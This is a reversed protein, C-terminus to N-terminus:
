GACPPPRIRAPGDKGELFVLGSCPPPSRSPRKRGGAHALGGCGICGVALEPGEPFLASAVAIPSNRISIQGARQALRDFGFHRAAGCISAASVFNRRSMTGNVAARRYWAAAHRPCHSFARAGSSLARRYLSQRGHAGLAAPSFGSAWPAPRITGKCLRLPRARLSLSAWRASCKRPAWPTVAGAHSRRRRQAFSDWVYSALTRRGVKIDGVLTM